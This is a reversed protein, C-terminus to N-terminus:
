YKSHTAPWDDERFVEGLRVIRLSEFRAIMGISAGCDPCQGPCAEEVCDDGCSVFTSDDRWKPYDPDDPSVWQLRSGLRYRKHSYGIASSAAAYTQLAVIVAHGCAPCKLLAEIENFPM